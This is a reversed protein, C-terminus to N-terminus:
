WCHLHKSSCWTTRCPLRWPRRTDIWSFLCVFVNSNPWMSLCPYWYVGHRKLINDRVLRASTIPDDVGRVEKMITSDAHKLEFESAARGAQFQSTLTDDCDSFHYVAEGDLGDAAM